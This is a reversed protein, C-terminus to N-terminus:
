IDLLYRMNLRDLVLSMKRGLGVRGVVKNMEIFLIDGSMWISM